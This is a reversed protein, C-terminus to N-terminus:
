PSHVEVRMATLTGSEDVKYVVEVKDNTKLDALKGQPKVKTVITADPAVKFTQSVASGKVTLLRTDADVAIITGSFQTAVPKDPSTPPTPRDPDAAYVPWPCGLVLAIVAVVVITSMFNSKM